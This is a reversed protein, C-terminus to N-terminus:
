TQPMRFRSIVVLITVLLQKIGFADTIGREVFVQSFNYLIDHVLEKTTEERFLSPMYPILKVTENIVGTTFGSFEKIKCAQELLLNLVLCYKTYDTKIDVFQM